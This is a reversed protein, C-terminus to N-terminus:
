REPTAPSSWRARRTSTPRASSKAAAARRAPARDGRRAGRGPHRGHARDRGAGGGADAAASASSRSPTPSVDLTGAAVNRRLVGRPQARGRLRPAIGRERCSGCPRSARRWFRPSPTSPRPDPRGRTRRVGAPQAHARLRRPASAGPRGGRVRRRGRSVRPRAGHGHRRAARGTGPVSLRDSRANPAAVRRRDLGAAGPAAPLLRLAPLDSAPAKPEHCQPCAGTTATQLADHTRRKATRTKSHRRKPNPM